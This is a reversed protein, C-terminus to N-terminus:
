KKKLGNRRLLYTVALLGIVAFFVEFGPTEPTSSPVPASAPTATQIPTTTPSITPSPKPTPEVETANFFESLDEYITEVADVIRPGGRCVIDTDIVYVRNNKVANVGKLRPENIIYDYVVNKDAIDMGTGSPVIIVDPNRDIFVELSVTSWDGIDSFVNEGGAIEIMEDQVTGSGAVWLPDHWTVHAVTPRKVTRTKNKIEELRQTMTAVLASANEEEGTITGVLMIDDLIESVNVPNVGVVTINLEELREFTEKGNLEDGLVLDPELSVVKEISVTSVGGVKEREKAEEPYNCYETVGVVRDGAGIAFLIETNTPSLSIIREPIGELTVNRGFDDTISITEAGVPLSSFAIASALVITLAAFLTWGWM